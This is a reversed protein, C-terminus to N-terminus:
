WSSKVKGKGFPIYSQTWQWSWSDFVLSEQVVPPSGLWKAVSVSLSM